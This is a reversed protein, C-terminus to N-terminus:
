IFGRKEGEQLREQAFIASRKAEWLCEKFFLSPSRIIFCNNFKTIAFYRSKYTDRLDFNNASALGARWQCIM